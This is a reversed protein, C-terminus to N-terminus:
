SNKGYHQMKISYTLLTAGNSNGQGKNDKNTLDEEPTVSYLYSAMEKNGYMMAIVVPLLKTGTPISVLRKNKQVMCQAIRKDGNISAKALATYGEKDKMELDKEEMIGVLKKVIDVDGALCAPHLVTNQSSPIRAKALKHNKDLLCEAKKWDGRKGASLFREVDSGTSWLYNM